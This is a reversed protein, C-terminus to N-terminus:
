NANKKMAKKDFVEKSPRPAWKHECVRNEICKPVRYSGSIGGYLGIKISLHELFVRGRGDQLRGTRSKTRCVSWLHIKMAIPDNKSSKPFIQACTRYIKTNNKQMGVGNWDWNKLTKGVFGWMLYVQFGVIFLHANVNEAINFFGWVRLRVLRCLQKPWRRRPVYVLKPIYFRLDNTEFLFCWPYADFRM